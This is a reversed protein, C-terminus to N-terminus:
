DRRVKRRLRAVREDDPDYEREPDRRAAAQLARKALAKLYADIAMDRIVQLHKRERIVAALKTQYEIIKAQRKQTVGRQCREQWWALRKRYFDRQKRLRKLQRRVAIVRREPEWSSTAPMDGNLVGHDDFEIDKRLKM